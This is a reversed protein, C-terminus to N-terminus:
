AGGETVAQDLKEQAGGRSEAQREDRGGEDCWGVGIIVMEILEM